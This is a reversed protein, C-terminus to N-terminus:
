AYSLYIFNSSLLIDVLPLELFDSTDDLKSFHGLFHVLLHLHLLATSALIFGEEALSSLGIQVGLIRLNRPAHLLYVQSLPVLPM